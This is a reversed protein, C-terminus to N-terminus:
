LLTNVSIHKNNGPGSEHDVRNLCFPGQFKDGTAKCAREGIYAEFLACILAVKRRQALTELVSDNTNKVFKAVKKQVQDLAKIGYERIFELM